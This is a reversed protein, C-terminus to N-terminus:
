IGPTIQGAQACHQIPAIGVDASWEASSNQVIHRSVPATGFVACPWRGHEQIGARFEIRAVIQQLARREAPRAAPTADFQHLQIQTSACIRNFGVGLRPGSRPRPGLLHLAGLHERHQSFVLVSSKLCPALAQYRSKVAPTISWDAYPVYGTRM